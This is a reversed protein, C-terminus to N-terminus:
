HLRDCCRIGISYNFFDPPHRTNTNGVEAAARSLLYAAYDANKKWGAHSLLPLCGDTLPLPGEWM